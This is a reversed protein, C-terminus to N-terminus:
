TNIKGEVWEGDQLIETSGLAGQNQGGGTVAVFQEDTDEDRIIGAGHNFRGQELSPGNIWEGGNHDYLFTVTTTSYGGIVMSYTSNIAVMAHSFMALPLDPGSMTGTVTVYDTSYLGGGYSDGGTVWLIKDNVVISAADYREVSMHAVLTIEETTLSYCEDFYSASYDGGGCIIITNGILGGIAGFSNIPFDPWDNCM